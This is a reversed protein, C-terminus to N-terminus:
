YNSIAKAKSVISTFASVEDPIHEYDDGQPDIEIM